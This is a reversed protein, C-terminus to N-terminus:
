TRVLGPTTAELRQRRGEIRISRAEAVYSEVTVKAASGDSIRRAIENITLDPHQAEAEIARDMLDPKRFRRLPGNDDQWKTLRHGIAALDILRLTTPCRNVISHWDDVIVFTPDTMSGEVSLLKGANATGNAAALVAQEIDAGESRLSRVAATPGIGLEGIAIAMAIRIVQLVTYGSRIQPDTQLSDPWGYKTTMVKIRLDLLYAARKDACLDPRALLTSVLTAMEMKRFPRYERTTDM